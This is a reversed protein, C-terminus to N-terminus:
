LSLIYAFTSSYNQVNLYFRLFGVSHQANSMGPAITTESTVSCSITPCSRWTHASIVSSLSTSAAILMWEKMQENMWEHMWKSMCENMQEHMWEHMWTNMWESMMWEYMVWEDNMWENMWENVCYISIWECMWENVWESMMWEIACEHMWKSLDNM